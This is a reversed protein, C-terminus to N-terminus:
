KFSLDRSDKLRGWDGGITSGFALDSVGLGNTTGVYLVDNSVLLATITDSKVLNSKGSYLRKTHGTKINTKNLGNTTGVWLVDEYFCAPSSQNESFKSSSLSFPDLPDFQLSTIKKTKKSLKLVGSNKTTFCIYEDGEILHIPRSGTEIRNFVDTKEDYYCVGRDTGVWLTNNKDIHTIWLRNGSITNEDFVNSRYVKNSFGDFRNLGEDTGIWIFGSSDQSASLVRSSSLNDIYLQKFGDPFVLGYLFLLSIIITKLL